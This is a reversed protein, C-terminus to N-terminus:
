FIQKHTRRKNNKLLIKIWGIFNDVFGYKKLAAILFAHSMSDFAKEFDITKLYGSLKEVVYKVLIQFLVGM